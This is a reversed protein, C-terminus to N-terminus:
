SSLNCNIHQKPGYVSGGSNLQRVCHEERVMGKMEGVRDRGAKEREVRVQGTRWGLPCWVFSSIRETELGQLIPHM